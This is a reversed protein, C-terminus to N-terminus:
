DLVPNLLIRIAYMRPSAKPTQFKKLPLFFPLVLDLWFVRLAAAELKQVSLGRCPEVTKEIPPKPNIKKGSKIRSKQPRNALSAGFFALAPHLQAGTHVDWTLHPLDTTSGPPRLGFVRNASILVSEIADRLIPARRSPPPEAPNSSARLM